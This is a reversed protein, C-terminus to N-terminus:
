FPLTKLRSRDVDFQSPRVWGPTSAKLSLGYSSLREKLHDIIRGTAKLNQLEDNSNCMLQIIQRETLKVFEGVYIIGYPRLKESVMYLRKDEGLFQSTKLNLYPFYRRSIMNIYPQDPIDCFLTTYKRKEKVFQIRSLAVIAQNETDFIESRTNESGDIRGWKRDLQIDNFLNYFVTCRYFRYENLNPAERELYVEAIM